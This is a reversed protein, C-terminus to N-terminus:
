NNFIFFGVGIINMADDYFSMMVNGKNNLRIPDGNYEYNGRRSMTGLAAFENELLLDYDISTPMITGISVSTFSRLEAPMKEKHFQIYSSGEEDAIIEYMESTLRVMSEMKENYFAKYEITLEKLRQDLELSPKIMAIDHTGVTLYRPFEYYYAVELDKSVFANLGYGDKWYRDEYNTFEGNKALDQLRAKDSESLFLQRALKEPTSIDIISNGGMDNRMLLQSFVESDMQDYYRMAYLASNEGARIVMPFTPYDYYDLKNAVNLSVAEADVLRDILRKESGKSPVELANHALLVMENRTFTSTSLTILESSSVVGKVLAFNLVDNYTFDKDTYGLAKIMFTSFDKSSANNASGFMTASIGRTLGKQYMYGVYDNAWGPVDNFPHTHKKLLAEDSAGLLNVLMVATQARTPIQDLEFGKDTGNFLGLAKLETALETNDVAVAYSVSSLAFMMVFICLVVLVRGYSRRM